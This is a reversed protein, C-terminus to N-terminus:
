ALPITASPWRRIGPLPIALLAVHRLAMGIILGHLADDDRDVPQPHSGTTPLFPGLVLGPAPLAHESRGIGAQLNLDLRQALIRRRNLREGYGARDLMEFADDALQVARRDEHAGGEATHEHLDQEIV